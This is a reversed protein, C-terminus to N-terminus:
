SVRVKTKCRPCGIIGIKAARIKAKCKPCGVIKPKDELSLKPKDVPTVQLQSSKKGWKDSIQSLSNFFSSASADVETKIIGSFDFVLKQLEGNSSSIIGVRNLFPSGIKISNLRSIAMRLTTQALMRASSNSSKTGLKALTVASQASKKKSKIKEIYEPPFKGAKPEFIKRLKSPPFIFPSADGTPYFCLGRFDYRLYGSIPEDYGPFGSQLLVSAKSILGIKDVLDKGGSYHLNDEPIKLFYKECTDFDGAMFFHKSLLLMKEGMLSAILKIEPCDLLKLEHIQDGNKLNLVFYPQSEEAKNASPFWGSSEQDKKFILTWDLEACLYNKSVIKGESDSHIVSVTNKSIALNYYPTDKKEASFFSMLKNSLSGEVKTATTGYFELEEVNINADEIQNWCKAFDEPLFFGTKITPNVKRSVLPPIDKQAVQKPPNNSPSTNPKTAAEKAQNLAIQAQDNLKQGIEITKEQAKAIAIKASNFWGSALSGLGTTEPNLPPPEQFLPPPEKETVLNDSLINESLKPEIPRVKLLVLVEPLKVWSKLDERRLHDTEIIKKDEILKLLQNDLIPGFQKKGDRTYFWKNVM